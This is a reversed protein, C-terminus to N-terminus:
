KIVTSPDGILQWTRRADQDITNRKAERILVGIPKNGDFLRRTVGQSMSIQDGAYTSGSSAWVAIAGNPSKFLSEAMSESTPSHTYGNLCTMLMFFALRENTLAAADTSRFVNNAAWVTTSGHGTYTVSMAGGNIESKIQQNLALDALSSRNLKVSFVDGPAEAELATSYNDFGNDAVLLNSRITRPSQNHYREIKMAMAMADELTSAPLRGISIDEVGDNDFDALWGDNSTEMTKADFLHTPIVDRVPQNLYNRMDYSSDGLLLVFEPTNSWNQYADRLFQKIAEDSKRGYSYEDYINELLVLQTEIGERKKVGQIEYAAKWFAMPSIVIMSAGSQESRWKSGLYPTAEPSAPQVYNSSVALFERDNGSPAITFRYSDNNLETDVLIKSLANGFPDLEYLDIDGDVFGDVAVSGGAPVSFRLEENRAKYLRSYRLSIEDVLSINSGTGATRLKVTNTGNVLGNMPVEFEFEENDTGNFSVTGLVNGNFSVNILHEAVTLGQLKIKLSAPQTDELDPDKIELTQNTDATTNVVAGFWNEAEGNLLSSLYIGRDRRIATVGYSFVNQTGKSGVDAKEPIRLGPEDGNVLYYVERDSFKTEYGNGVFEILPLGSGNAIVRIPLQNGNRYLQWKSQDSNPDFGSAALEGASIRYRGQKSVHLKVGEAAALQVQRLSDANNKFHKDIDSYESVIEKQFQGGELKTLNAITRSVRTERQFNFDPQVYVPGHRTETGDLDLDDLYYVSGPVPNEDVWRYEDGSLNLPVNTRLASGAIPAPNLLVMRGNAFRYLNFGLNDSEGGTSWEIVNRDGEGFVEFRDLEIQTPALLLGFDVTPNITEATSNNVVNNGAAGSSGATLTVIGSIIQGPYLGTNDPFGNDNNDVNLNPDTETPTSSPNTGASLVVRFDGEPLCKFVYQGSSDTVVGGPGDDATGLIGDSGVPIENGSSDFLRVVFTPLLTEGSDLEGDNNDAGPGRDNWVTGSLTLGYFGFDVTMDAFQDLTGQGAFSGSSPIDPESTPESAPSLTLTNSIIGDTLLDTSVAPAVGNEANSSAGSSDADATNTGSTNQYGDLIAGSAFNSPNIRIVYTGAVVSDFRYYGDADTTVTGVPSSPTDPVGDTDSDAFLSVSVGAIGVETPDIIGDNNTDYWVRNGISFISASSAPKFGFDYTHDNQGYGATTLLASVTTGSLVVGDSDRSDGLASGDANVSTPVYNELPQGSNFNSSVVRVEYATDPTIGCTGAVSYEIVLRPARNSSGDFSEGERYGGASTGTLIFAMSNGSAWGGRNVIEQVVSVLSPSQETSANTWTSTVWNVSATTRPRGAINNNATTFTTPNDAAQGEITITKSGSSTSNNNNARLEIYANTITAGVPVSVGNFRLGVASYTPSAGRESFFDLDGSNTIVATSSANQEADDSSQNVVVNVSGTSGGCGTRLMNLKSLGGFLYNGSSDTTTSGDLTDVIGDNDTDVWLEVAVNALASEGPDQVGDGDADDWIRNGIQIPANDCMSVVDGLGNSKAFTAGSSLNTTFINYARVAEGQDADIWRMGASFAGTGLNVPDFVSFVLDPRGPIQDFGGLSTENHSYSGDTWNEGWFYEADGIGQGNSQPGNGLGACRANSESVWGSTADGCAMLSDGASDGVYLTASSPDSPVLVGLQDGSRDRLGIVLNGATDFEIGTFMPQPFGTEDGGIGTNIAGATTFTTHWANWEAPITAASPTRLVFGRPYDLNVSYRRTFSLTAPDVEYLHARLNSLTGPTSEGSSVIGVYLKGNYYEVAFPRVDGAAAAGPPRNAASSLDSVSGSVNPVGPVTQWRLVAGTSRNLEYLTRNQLNMVWLLTEDDDMALGGLATKGVADWGTNGNDCEYVTFTGGCVNTTGHSDTTAGPVTYTNTVTNSNPDIEYIAGPGGPGFLTHKKFYAAAYVRQSQRAYALGWTPGIQSQDMTFPHSAPFEYPPKTTASFDSGASYPFDILVEGNPASGDVYCNTILRPDDQCYNKQNTLSLDVNNTTGNNVFRVTTQGTAGVQGPHFGSPLSSFEIRYPGTASASLSYTGDALTTASGRVVGSSDYATVVIGSVGVDISYNPAVGTTDFVGNLNYDLFARGSITGAAEARGLPILVTSTALLLGVAAIVFLNGKFENKGSEKHNM